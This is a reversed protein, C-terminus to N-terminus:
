VIINKDHLAKVFRSAMVLKSGTANLLDRLLSSKAVSLETWRESFSQQINSEVRPIAEAM